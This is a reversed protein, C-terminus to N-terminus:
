LITEMEAKFIIMEQVEMLIILELKVQGAQGPREPARALIGLVEDVARQTAAVSGDSAALLQGVKFDIANVAASLVKRFADAGQSALLFAQRGGGCALDLIPHGDAGEVIRKAFRRVLASPALAAVKDKVDALARTPLLILALILLRSWM